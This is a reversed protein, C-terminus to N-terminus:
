VARAPRFSVKFNAGQGIRVRTCRFVEAVGMHALQVRDPADDVLERLALLSRVTDVSVAQNWIPWTFELARNRSHFGTTRLRTVTAMTPLLPLGEFALRSAGWVSTVGDTSPDAWRLAYEKADEPDWRLSLGRDARRWPGVLAERLHSADTGTSLERITGLFHQHGSGTIFCLSTREMKGKDDQFVDSGFAAVFDAARRDERALTSAVTRTVGGFVELPVTLDKGIGEFADLPVWPAASALHDALEGADDMPCGALEPQWGSAQVWRLTVRRDPWCQSALRLTGLSALFGLPNSGEIGTLIM